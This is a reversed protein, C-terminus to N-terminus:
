RASGPPFPLRPLSRPCPSTLRRPVAKRGPRKWPQQRHNFVKGLKAPNMGPERGMPVPAHSLHLRNHADIWAQLKRNSKKAM